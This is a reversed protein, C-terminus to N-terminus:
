RGVTRRGASVGGDGHRRRSFSTVNAEQPDILQSHIFHKPLFTDHGVSWDAQRSYQYGAAQQPHRASIMALGVADALPDTARRQDPSKALSIPNDVHARLAIRAQRRGPRRCPDDVTTPNTVTLIHRSNKLFPGFNSQGNCTAFTAPAGIQQTARWGAVPVITHTTLQKSFMIDLHNRHLARVRRDSASGIVEHLSNTSVPEAM